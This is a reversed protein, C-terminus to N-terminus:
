TSVPRAAAWSCRAPERGHVDAADGGGAAVADVPGPLGPQRRDDRDLGPAAAVVGAREVDDLRDDLVVAAPRRAPPGLEPRPEEPGRRPDRRPRPRDAQAARDHRVLVPRVAPPRVARPRVCRGPSPWSTTGASRAPSGDDGGRLARPRRARADAARRPDRRGRGPPRRAQRRLRLRRGRAPGEARRHRLPRDRARRRVRARLDGLGRRPEGDGPVRRADRPHEAPLRRRPRRPRRRPAAPGRARARGPRAPRRLDGRVPRAVALPRRDRRPGTDEDLGVMHEAYNLTAGEFWRAGPM